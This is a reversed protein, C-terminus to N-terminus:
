TEKFYQNMRHNVIELNRKLTKETKKIFAHLLVLINGDITFLIRVTGSSVMSRIEWLRAGMKRVLPLGIPWGFQVTKIDEGLKKRDDKPLQKLWVRVPERGSSTKFFRVNLLPQILQNM